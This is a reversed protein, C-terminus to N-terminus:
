AKQVLQTLPLLPADQVLSCRSVRDSSIVCIMRITQLPPMSKMCIAPPHPINAKSPTLRTHTTAATRTEDDQESREKQVQIGEGRGSHFGQVPSVHNCACSILVCIMTSRKVMALRTLAGAHMVSPNRRAQRSRRTTFSTKGLGLRVRLSLTAIQASVATLRAAISGTVKEVQSKGGALEGDEVKPADVSHPLPPSNDGGTRSKSENWILPNWHGSERFDSFRM